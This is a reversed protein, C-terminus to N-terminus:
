QGRASKRERFAPLNLANVLATSEPPTPSCLPWSAFPRLPRRMAGYGVRLVHRRCTDRARLTAGYAEETGSVAYPPLELRLVMAWALVATARCTSTAGYGRDRICM